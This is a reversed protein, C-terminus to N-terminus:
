ETFENLLIDQYLPLKERFKIKETGDYIYSSNKSNGFKSFPIIIKKFNISDELFTNCSPFIIEKKELSQSSM